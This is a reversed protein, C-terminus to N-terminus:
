TAAGRGRVQEGGAAGPGEAGVGPRVLGQSEALSVELRDRSGRSVSGKDRGAAASVVSTDGHVGSAGRLELERCRQRLFLCEEWLASLGSPTPASSPVDSMSAHTGDPHRESQATGAEGDRAGFSTGSVTGLSAPEAGWAEFGRDLARRPSGPGGSAAQRGVASPEVVPSVSMPTLPHSHSGAARLRGAQPDPRAEDRDAGTSPRAPSGDCPLSPATGTVVSPTWTMAAASDDPKRSSSEVTTGPTDRVGLRGGRSAGAGPVDTPGDNSQCADGEVDWGSTFGSELSSAVSGATCQVGMEVRSHGRSRSASGEAKRSSAGLARAEADNQVPVDGPSAPTVAGAAVGHSGGQGVSGASHVRSGAGSDRVDSVTGPEMAGEGAGEKSPSPPGSALSGDAEARSLGAESGAKAAGISEQLDRTRSETKCTQVAAERAGLWGAPPAPVASESQPTAAVWLPGSATLPMPATGHVFQGRGFAAWSSTVQAAGPGLVRAADLGHWTFGQGLPAGAAPPTTSLSAHPIPVSGDTTLGRSVGQFAPSAGHHWSPLGPGAIQGPQSGSGPMLGQGPPPLSAPEPGRLAEWRM